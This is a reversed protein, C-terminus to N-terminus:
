SFNADHPTKWQDKRLGLQSRKEQRRMERRYVLYDGSSIANRGKTERCYLYAWAKIEQGTKLWVKVRRRQFASRWNSKAEYGEYRDLRNFVREPDRRRYLEGVVRAEPNWSLVAGPYSGLDYLKAKLIAEGVMKGYRILVTAAPNRLQRRLSGYIFLFENNQM